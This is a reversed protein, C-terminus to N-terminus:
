IGVALLIEGKRKSEFVQLRAIYSLYSLICFLRLHAYFLNVVEGALGEWCRDAATAALVCIIGYPRESRLGFVGGM